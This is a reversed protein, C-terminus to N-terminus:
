EQGELGNKRHMIIFALLVIGMNALVIYFSRTVDLGYEMMGNLALQIQRTFIFYFIEAITENADSLMPAFALIFPVAQAVPMFKPPALALTVGLIVATTAGLIGLSLYVILESFSYRGIAGFLVLVVAAVVILAGGTGILYQTPRVGAMSMFRLNMTLKDEWICASATGVMGMGMFVPSFMNSFEWPYQDSVLLSFILALGLLMLPVGYSQPKKVYSQLQKIFIAQINRM